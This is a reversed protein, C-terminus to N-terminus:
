VQEAAPYRKSTKSDFGGCYKCAALPTKDFNMLIQQKEERSLTDDHVDVYDGRNPVSHGLDASFISRMCNHIQGKYMHWNSMGIQWCQEHLAKLQEQTYQRDAFSTNDVWGGYHQMDGHYAKCVYPIGYTDFARTMRDIGYSYKGYDSIQVQCREGFKRMVQLTEENPALTGNTMIIMKEFQKEYEWTKQFVQALEPYMFVEGGVFQFWQIKDILQFAGEIDEFVGALPRHATAKYEPVNNCCLKCNLTCKTTIVVALRRAILM